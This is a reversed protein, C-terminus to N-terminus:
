LGGAASRNAGDVAEALLSLVDDPRDCEASVPRDRYVIRIREITEHTQGEIRPLVWGLRALMEARAQTAAQEDKRAREVAAAIESAREAEYVSREADAGRQYAWRYGALLLGLGLLAIWVASPIRRLASMVALWTM